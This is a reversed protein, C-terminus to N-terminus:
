LAYFLRNLNIKLNIKDLKIFSSYTIGNPCHSVKPANQEWHRGDQFKKMNKKQVPIDFNVYVLLKLNKEEFNFTKHIKSV